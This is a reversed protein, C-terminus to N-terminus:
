GLKVQLTPLLLRFKWTLVPTHWPHTMDASTKLRTTCQTIRHVVSSWCLPIQRVSQYKPPGHSRWPGQAATECVYVCALSSVGDWCTQDVPLVAFWCSSFRLDQCQVHISWCWDQKIVMGKGACLGKGVQAANDSLISAGFLVYLASEAFGPIGDPTQICDPLWWLVADLSLQLEVLDTYQRGKPISWLAPLNGLMVKGLQLGKVCCAKPFDLADKPWSGNGVM